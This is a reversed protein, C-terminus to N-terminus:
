KWRYGISGGVWRPPAYSEIGYGGGAFSLDFAYVTREVDTLNNVFLSADWREDQSTYTLRANAVFYDDDSQVPHNVTNYFRDDVYNFDGQIALSGGFAPWEYRALGNISIEPAFPM